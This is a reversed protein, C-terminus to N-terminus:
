PLGSINLVSWPECNVPWVKVPASAQTCCYESQCGGGLVARRCLAECLACLAECLAIDALSSFYVSRGVKVAEIALASALHTKCAQRGSFIFPGRGWAM